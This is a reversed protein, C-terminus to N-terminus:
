FLGKLQVYNTKVTEIDGVHTDVKSYDTISGPLKKLLPKKRHHTLLNQSYLWLSKKPVEIDPTRDVGEPNTKFANSSPDLSGLATRGWTVQKSTSSQM